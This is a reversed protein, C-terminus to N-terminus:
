DTSLVAEGEGKTMDLTGTDGQSWHEAIYGEEAASLMKLDYLFDDTLGMKVTLRNEYGMTIYSASVEVSQVKELLGKQELASLLSRLGKAKLSEEESVQIVKGVEPEELHIGTIVPYGKNSSVQELLKGGSDLYWVKGSVTVAGAPVTEVVRLVVRDPPLTLVSVQKLYPLTEEMRKAIEGRPISVLNTGEAIDACELLEEASYRRNGEVEFRHAKFFVLSGAVVAAVTLLASLVIYLHFLRGGRRRRSQHKRQTAM